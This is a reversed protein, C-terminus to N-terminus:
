YSFLHSNAEAIKDIEDGDQNNCHKVYHAYIDLTTQIDEHGLWYQVRKIDWKRDILISACTHRLRHLTIEPRGFETAAKKFRRTIYNPDYERGDRWCFVYGLKNADCSAFFNKDEDQRKKIMNLCEIATDFLDLERKSANTKTSDEDHISKVRVRTHNIKIVKKKYDIASWRLGLIESRRLGYYIGFFAIGLLEQYKESLFKLFESIEDETLFLYDDKYSKNAKNGIQISLTPNTTIINEVVALDFMSRMISKYSRVSRISLPELEGTKQNRKGHKLLYVFMKKLERSTLSSVKPNGNDEFYRKLKEVRYFYGEDTSSRIVTKRDEFWHDLYDCITPDEGADFFGRELHSYKEITEGILGKAKKKNNKTTLGTSVYKSVWKDTDPDKYQLVIYYYEKGSSTTKTALCGTM